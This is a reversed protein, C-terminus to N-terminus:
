GIQTTAQMRAFDAVKQPIFHSSVIGGWIADYVFRVTTKLSKDQKM